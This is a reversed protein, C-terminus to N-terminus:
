SRGTCNPPNTWVNNICIVTGTGGGTYGSACTVNFISGTSTNSSPQISSSGAISYPADSCQSATCSAKNTWNGHEDCELSGNVVSGTYRFCVM